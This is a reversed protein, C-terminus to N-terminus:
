FLSENLTPWLRLASIGQKVASPVSNKECLARLDISLLTLTSCSFLGGMGRRLVEAFEATLHSGLRAPKMRILLIM